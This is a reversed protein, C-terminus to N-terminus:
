KKAYRIEKPDECILSNFKGVIRAVRLIKKSDFKNHALMLLLGEFIHKSRSFVYRDFIDLSDHANQVSRLLIPLLSICFDAKRSTFSKELKCFRDDVFLVVDQVSAELLLSKRLRRIKPASVSRVLTLAEEPIADFIDRIGEHM